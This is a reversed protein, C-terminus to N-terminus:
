FIIIFNVKGPISKGLDLYEKVSPSLFGPPVVTAENTPNNREDVDDDDYYYYDDEPDLPKARKSVKNNRGDASNSHVGNVIVIAGAIVNNDEATQLDDSIEDSMGLPSVM